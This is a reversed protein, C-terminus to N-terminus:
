AFARLTLETLGNDRPRATVLTYVDAGVTVLDGPKAGTTQYDESRVAVMPDSQEVPVGGVTMENYPGRWAGELVHDNGGETLTVTQGFADLVADALATADIM